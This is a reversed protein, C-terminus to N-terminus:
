SHRVAAPDARSPSRSFGELISSTDEHGTMMDRHNLVQVRDKRCLKSTRLPNRQRVDSPFLRVSSWSRAAPSLHQEVTCPSTLTLNAGLGM